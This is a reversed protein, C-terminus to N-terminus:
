DESEFSEREAVKKFDDICDECVIFDSVEYYSDGEYIGCGCLDCEFLPNEDEPVSTLYDDLAHEFSPCPLENMSWSM